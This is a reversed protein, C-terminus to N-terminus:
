PFPAHSGHIRTCHPSPLPPSATSPSNRPCFRPLLAVLIQMMNMKGSKWTGIRRPDDLTSRGDSQVFGTGILKGLAIGMQRVPEDSGRERKSAAKM